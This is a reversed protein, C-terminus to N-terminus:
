AEEGDIEAEDGYGTPIVEADYGKEQLWRVMETAYGHTVMIRQAGSAAITQVLGDWDTHDSLVFGRDVSRRRRNGRIRMWGSAFARSRNPFRRMWVPNDASPPAIVLAGEFLEKEKVDSIYQTEPLTIGVDRYAQNIKEVAGHTLIPGISPNLGALVRQAKGLAYAFLISTRKQERNSRWWSNIEQIVEDPHPWRFIPLGFTCESVFTHCHLPELPLCTPDVDTKYDGSVVCIFGGKDIKVQASGLIHGAPHLSLEVSNVAIAEGYELGEINAEQGLRSQLLRKGDQACLYSLSGMRAHDAHAHTIVARKVPRWPDIYFDGSSCYLGSSTCELIGTMESVVM